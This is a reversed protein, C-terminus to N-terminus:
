GASTAEPVAVWAPDPSTDLVEDIAPLFYSLTPWTESESIQTMNVSLTITAIMELGSAVVNLIRTRNVSRGAANANVFRLPSEMRAQTRVM